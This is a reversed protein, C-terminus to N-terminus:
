HTNDHPKLKNISEKHKEKEQIMNKVTWQTKFPYAQLLKHYSIIAAKMTSM